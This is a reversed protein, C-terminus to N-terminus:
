SSRVQHYKSQHTSLFWASTSCLADEITGNDEFLDSWRVDDAFCTAPIESGGDAQDPTHGRFLCWQVVVMRTILKGRLM